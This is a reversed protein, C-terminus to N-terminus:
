DPYDQMEIFRRFRLVNLSAKLFTNQFSDISTCDTIPCNDYCFVVIDQNETSDYIIHFNNAPFTDEFEKIESWKPTRNINDILLLEYSRTSTITINGYIGTLSDTFDISSNSECSCNYKMKCNNLASCIMFSIINFNKNSNM